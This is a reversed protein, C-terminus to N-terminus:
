LFLIFEDYKTTVDLLKVPHSIFLVRKTSNNM